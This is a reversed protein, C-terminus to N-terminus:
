GRIRMHRALEGELLEIVLPRLLERLAAVDVPAGAPATGTPGSAPQGVITEPEFEITTEMSGIEVNAM